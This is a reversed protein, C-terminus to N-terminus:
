ATIMTRAPALVSSRRSQETRASVLYQAGRMASQSYQPIRVLELDIWLEEAAEMFSAIAVGAEFEYVAAKKSSSTKVLFHVENDSQVAKVARVGAPYCKKSYSLVQDYWNEKRNSCVCSKDEHSTGSRHQKRVAMGFAVAAVCKMGEYSEKEMWEPLSHLVSAEIGRFRLFMAMQGVAYGANLYNREGGDAFVLLYYVSREGSRRRNGHNGKAAMRIRIRGDRDPLVLNETFTRVSDLLSEDIEVMHSIENTKKRPKLFLNM